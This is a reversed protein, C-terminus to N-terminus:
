KGNKATMVKEKTKIPYFNKRLSKGNVVTHGRHMVRIGLEIERKINRCWEYAEKIYRQLEPGDGTLFFEGWFSIKNDPYKKGKVRGGRKM